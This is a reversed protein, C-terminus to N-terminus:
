ALNYLRWLFSDFVMSGTERFESRFIPLMDQSRIGEFTALYCDHNLLFEDMRSEVGPNRNLRYKQPLNTFHTNAIELADEHLRTGNRGVNEGISWFEGDEVL